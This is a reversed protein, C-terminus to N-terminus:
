AKMEALLLEVQSEMLQDTDLPKDTFVLRWIMSLMM